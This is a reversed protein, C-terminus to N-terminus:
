IRFEIAQNEIIKNVESSSMNREVRKPVVVGMPHGFNLYQVEYLQGISDIIRESESWEYGSLESNMIIDNPTSYKEITDNLDNIDISLVPFTPPDIFLKKNWTELYKSHTKRLQEIDRINMLRYVDEFIEFYIEEGKLNSFDIKPKESNKIPKNWIDFAIHRNLSQNEVEIWWYKIKSKRKQLLYLNYKSSLISNLFTLKESKSDSKINQVKVIL